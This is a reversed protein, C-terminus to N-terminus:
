KREKKLAGECLYQATQVKVTDGDEFFQDFVDVEENVPPGAPTINYCKLHLDSDARGDCVEKGSDDKRCKIAPTCLLQPERVTVAEGGKDKYCEHFQDCLRVDEKPATGQNIVYCKFNVGFVEEGGAWADGGHSLGGLVGTVLLAAALVVISGIGTTRTSM